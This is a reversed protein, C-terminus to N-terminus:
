RKLLKEFVYPMCEEERMPKGALMSHTDRWERKNAAIYTEMDHAELFNKTRRTVQKRAIERINPYKGILAMASKIYNSWKRGEIPIKEIGETAIMDDYAPSDFFMIFVEIYFKVMELVSSGFLSNFADDDIYADALYMFDKAIYNNNYIERCGSLERAVSANREFGISNVVIDAQIPHRGDVIVGNETMGSIEGSITEIKKLYHGVFWIDSVSITHGAHKIKGMWCEPQTAGSLEYMKKWYMMNLLNSKKDHKYAEDYPTIFNLYDIIKPCITGHRRCVVTVHRAGGELATRTNEVAFAGMGIIVVNKNRWDIGETHNSIGTVIKGQFASQNQWKVERPTGVRDNIALIVGKCELAVANDGRKLQIQYRNGTAEIGAVETEIFLRRSVNQALQAVDELIEWTGSHDRNSRTKKELLRYACESSNVRSTRNAYQSWIGGVAGSKELICFSIGAELLRNAAYLGTIGAGIIAVDIKTPLPDSNALRLKNGDYNFKSLAYADIRERVTKPDAGHIKVIDLDPDGVDLEGGDISFLAYPYCASRIAKLASLLEAITRAKEKEAVFVYPLDTYKRLKDVITTIEESDFKLLHEGPLDINSFNAVRVNLRQGITQNM